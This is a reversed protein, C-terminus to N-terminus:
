NQSSLIKRASAISIIRDVLTDATFNQSMLANNSGLQSVLDRDQVLMEIAEALEPVSYPSVLLGNYGHTVIEPISRFKTSIIPVGAMMAEILVGPHGESDYFTPLVLLDQHSLREIVDQWDLIGAYKTNTLEGITRQFEERIPEHINGYVTLEIDIKKENLLRIAELLVLIGKDKKVIGVFVMKLKSNDRCKKKISANSLPQRYGAIQYVSQNKLLQSFHNQLFKTQVIVGSFNRLTTLALWRLPPRLGEIYQDLAGGFVRFFCKKRNIKAILLLIPALSIVYGNSGFILISDIKRVNISFNYIISVAQKINAPSFQFSRQQKLFNPSTNVVVLKQIHPSKKALECFIDFSVPTGTLPPPLPGLALLKYM